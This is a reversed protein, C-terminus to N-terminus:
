EVAGAKMNANQESSFDIIQPAIRAFQQRQGAIEGFGPKL